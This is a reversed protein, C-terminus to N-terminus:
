NHSFWYEYPALFSNLEEATYYRGVYQRLKTKLSNFDTCQTIIERIVPHYVGEIPDPNYSSGWYTQDFSDMLDVFLPSYYATSGDTKRWSQAACGTIDQRISSKVYGLATYYKDALYWGVYNAYSERMLKHVAVYGDYGGREGYMTFHGLEHEVAGALLNDRGKYNRYVKIYAQTKKSYYFEASTTESNQYSAIIRIGEKYYWTRIGHAGNFYYNVIPNLEFNLESSAPCLKIHTDPTPWYKAVSGWTFIFPATNYENTIKWRPHETIISYRAEYPIPATISFYGNSQTYTDWINSGLQFRQKLNAQPVLKKLFNDSYEITGTFTRVVDGRTALATSPSIGLATHIAERELIRMADEPLGASRTPESDNPIFVEYDIEYDMDEPLPKDYPWVVYMIPMQYTETEAPGNETELEDYTVSYPSNEPYLETGSRTFAPLEDIEEQSLQVYDFPLYSVKIDEMLAIKWQEKENKPYLKLSYHTAKLQTGPAFEELQSRTLAQCARGSALNDYARQFNELTYPDNRRRIFSSTQAHYVVEGTSISAETRDAEESAVDRVPAEPHESCSWLSTLLLCFLMTAVQKTFLKKKM